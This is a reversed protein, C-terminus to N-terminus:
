DPMKHSTSRWTRQGYITYRKLMQLTKHGTIHSLAMMDGNLKVSLRSIGEHRLDHFHFDEIGSRECARKFAQSLGRGCYGFVSEGAGSRPMSELINVARRSLPFTGRNM